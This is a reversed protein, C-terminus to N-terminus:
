LPFVFEDGLFRKYGTVPYLGLGGLGPAVVSVWGV